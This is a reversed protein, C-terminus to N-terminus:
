APQKAAAQTQSQRSAFWTGTDTGILLPLWYQWSSGRYLDYYPTNPDAWWPLELGQYETTTVEPTRGQQLMELCRSCVQVEMKSGRGDDITREAYPGRDERGCYLCRDALQIETPNGTAAVTKSRLVREALLVAEAANQNAERLGAETESASTQQDALEFLREARDHLAALEESLDASNEKVDVLASDAIALTSQATRRMADLYPPAHIRNRRARYALSGVVAALIILVALWFLAASRNNAQDRSQALSVAEKGASLACAAFGSSSCIPATRAEIRHIDGASLRNSSVGIGHPWVLVLVGDTLATTNRLADAASQTAGRIPYFRKPVTNLLAFKEPVGANSAEAAQLELRQADGSALAGVVRAQPSIYVNKTQLAISVQANEDARSARAAGLATVMAIVAASLLFLRGKNSLGCRRTRAAEAM